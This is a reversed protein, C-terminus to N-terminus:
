KIEITYEDLFVEYNMISNEKIIYRNDDSAYIDFYKKGNIMRVKYKEVSLSYFSVSLQDNIYNQFESIDNFKKIRYDENLTNYAEAIDSLILNKFDNLYKKAMDDETVYVPIYENAKYKSIEVDRDELLKESNRIKQYQNLYCILGVVGIILLCFIVTNKNKILNEM